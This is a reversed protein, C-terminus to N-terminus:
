KSFFAKEPSIKRSQSHIKQPELPTKENLVTAYTNGRIVRKEWM